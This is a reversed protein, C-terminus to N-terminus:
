QGIVASFLETSAAQVSTKLDQAQLYVLWDTGRSTDQISKSFVNVFHQVQSPLNLTM